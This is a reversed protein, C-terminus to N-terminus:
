RTYWRTQLSEAYANTGKHTKPVFQGGSKYRDCQAGEENLWTEQGAFSDADDPDMYLDRRHRVTQLWEMDIEQNPTLPLWETQPPYCFSSFEISMLAKDDFLPVTDRMSNPIDDLSMPEIRQAWDAPTGWTGYASTSFTGQAWEAVELKIREFEILTDSHLLLTQLSRDAQLSQQVAQDFSITSSEQGM